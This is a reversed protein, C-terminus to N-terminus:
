SWKRKPRGRKSHSSSFKTFLAAILKSDATLQPHYLHGRRVMTGIQMLEKKSLYENSLYSNILTREHQTLIYSKM